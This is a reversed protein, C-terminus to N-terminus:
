AGDNRLSYGTHVVGGPPFGLNHVVVGQKNTIAPYEKHKERDQQMLGNQTVPATRHNNRLILDANHVLLPHQQSSVAGQGVARDDRQISLGAQLGIRQGRSDM